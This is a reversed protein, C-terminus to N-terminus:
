QNVTYTVRWYSLGEEREQDTSNDVGNELTYTKKETNDENSIELENCVQNSYTVFTFGDDWSHFTGQFVTMGSAEVQQQTVYTM